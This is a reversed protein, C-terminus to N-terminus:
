YIIIIILLSLKSVVSSSDSSFSHKYLLVFCCFLLLLLFVTNFGNHLFHKHDRVTNMLWSSVLACLKIHIGFGFRLSCLVTSNVNM